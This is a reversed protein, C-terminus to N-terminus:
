RSPNDTVWRYRIGLLFTDGAAAGLSDPSVIAPMAILRLELDDWLRVGARLRYKINVFDIRMQQSFHIKASGAM